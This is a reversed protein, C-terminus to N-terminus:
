HLKRKIYPIYMYTSYSAPTALMQSLKFMQLKSKLVLNDNFLNQIHQSQVTKSITDLSFCYDTDTKLM